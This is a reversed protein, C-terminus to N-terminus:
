EQNSLNEIERIKLLLKECLVLIHSQNNELQLIIPALEKQLTEDATIYQERLQSLKTSESQLQRKIRTWELYKERAHTNRFDHLSHYITSDNIVFHFSGIVDNTDLPELPLQIHTSDITTWEIKKLQAYAILSDASINKWYKKYEPIIFSYVTVRGEAAFRDTALYGTNRTEDILFLYENAPSNYPMGLNEPATYNETSINYRSVYIDLGGLGNPDDAAFYLTVGDNLMFPSSQQQTFNISKPLTDPTTWDDLLRHNSLIHQNSDVLTTWLKRDGRQNTYVIHKNEDFSLTGAEPSLLCVQLISDFPVEISDIIQIREVRRMYRQFKEAYRIQEQAYKVREESLNPKSLYTEYARIAEDFHWLKM